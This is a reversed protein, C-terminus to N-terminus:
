FSLLCKSIRVVNSWLQNLGSAITFNSHKILRQCTKVFNSINKIFGDYLVTLGSHIISTQVWEVAFIELTVILEKEISSQEKEVVTELFYLVEHVFRLFCLLKLVRVVLSWLQTFDSYGKPLVKWNAEKSIKFGQTALVLGRWNFIPRRGWHAKYVRIIIWHSQSREAVEDKLSKSFLSRCRHSTESVPDKQFFKEWANKVNIEEKSPLHTMWEDSKVAYWKPAFYETKFVLDTDVRRTVICDIESELQISHVHFTKVESPEVLASIVDNDEVQIKSDVEVIQSIAISSKQALFDGSLKKLRAYCNKSSLGTLFEAMLSKFIAMDGKMITMEKSLRECKKEVQLM